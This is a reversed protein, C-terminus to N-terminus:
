LTKAAPYLPRTQLGSQMWTEFDAYSLTGAQTAAHQLASEGMHQGLARYAEFQGEDFMQDATSEHPFAPNRGRYETILEDEDGTISSKFYLLTGYEKEHIGHVRDVPYCIQGVAWHNSTHGHGDLRLPNLDIKIEIGLDIRAYRQLTALGNFHHASDCEGDGIILFKCRRRLLEMAAMNEIHGGDSLNVWRHNEDLLSMMERRLASPRVRWFFGDMLSVMRDRGPPGARKLLRDGAKIPKGTEIGDIIEADPGFVHVQTKKRPKKAGDDSSGPILTKYWKEQEETAEIRIVKGTNGPRKIIGDMEAFPPTQHRMLTSLSSALYGGGSVSSIYDIHDFVGGDHLAQVMGLNVTASRIGGGSLALGFLRHRTSPFEVPALPRPNNRGYVMSRRKAIEVKETPFVGDFFTLQERTDPPATEPPLEGGARSAAKQAKAFEKKQRQRDDKWLYDELRDPHPVWFGLRINLLTLFATMFPNTGSGMNPSAAAASIAMATGLDMQPFVAEMNESRCYHTRDGGCFRKSFVFFDSQRDRVAPDVSGQLNMATNILHYPAVSKADYNCIEQLNLDEEIDIDGDTNVGVLFASALRDRYLGNISTQNVDVALWTFVWIEFATILVLVTYLYQEYESNTIMFDVAMFIFVLLAIMGFFLGALKLHGRAKFSRLGMFWTILLLIAFIAPLVLLFIAYLELWGEFNDREAYVLFEVVFLVFTGPIIIGLLGIVVIAIKRALGGLVPLVQNATILGAIMAGFTPLVFSVDGGRYSNFAVIIRPLYEIAAAVLVFLLLAGFWREYRDRRKVSSLRGTRLAERYRKVRSMRVAVPFALVLVTAALLVFSSFFFIPRPSVQLRGGALVDEYTFEVKPRNSAAAVSLGSGSINWKLREFMDEEGVFNPHGSNLAKVLKHHFQHISARDHPREANFNISTTERYNREVTIKLRVIDSEEITEDATGNRVEFDISTQKAIYLHMTAILVALVLLYPLLIMVNMFIGRVLVAAIRLYDTLGATLMYNSHNRVWTLYESEKPGKQLPYPFKGTEIEVSEKKLTKKPTM